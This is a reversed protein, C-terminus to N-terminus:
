SASVGELEKANEERKKYYLLAKLWGETFNVVQENYGDFYVQLFASRSMGISRACNDILEVIDSPLTVLVKQIPRKAPYVKKTRSM